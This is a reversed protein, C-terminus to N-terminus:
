DRSALMGRARVSLATLWGFGTAISVRQFCRGWAVLGPAQGFAASFLVFTTAMLLASGGSYCAWGSYGQTAFGRGSMAAAAPIGVFIPIACLDHLAGERSPQRAGNAPGEPFAAIADGVFVGSGLLGLGAAALLAPSAGSGVVRKPQRALGPATALYMAGTVVFNTRQIRGRRGEALSSVAHRRVDYGDRSAGLATFTSVFLPGALVGCTLLQGRGRGVTDRICIV